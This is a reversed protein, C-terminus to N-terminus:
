GEFCFPAGSASGFGVSPLLHFLHMYIFNRKNEKTGNEFSAAYFLWIGAFTFAYLCAYICVHMFLGVCVYVCAYAVCMNLDMCINKIVGSNLYRSVLRHFLNQPM